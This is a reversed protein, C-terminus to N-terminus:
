AREMLLAGGQGGGICLSAVGRKAQNLQLVRALHLAIRAGSAGVPHGIAIAGGHVNLKELAITGMPESAKLCQKAYAADSSAAVCGLVQGAFAENIEWFDIDEINFNFNKKLEHIAHVPGLGMEAPDLGTWACGEIKALVKLGYQKVVAESALLVMAAGDTVQSSNAPTVLGFPKDFYPKLTALKELSCDTRVGTDSQYATGKTDFCPVIESLVHPQQKFVGQQEAVVARQHSGVAYQDMAHRTIGFRYAVNEATQGMSLGVLPDTLGRMLAITPKFCKLRLRALQKIRALPTKASMWGGLWQSMTDDYLVPARSMADTGGALVLNAQGSRIAQVANDLAQLGSACNRQVTYAPTKIDCGLRLAIIRAINVEDVSPMVCGVIVHDLASVAFPQRLLLARGAQVALDSASFPNPKGVAKLFPTRAGDVLYVPTQM